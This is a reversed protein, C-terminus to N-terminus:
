KGLSNIRINQSLGRCSGADSLASRSANGGRCGVGCHAGDNWSGGALLVFCSGHFSGSGLDTTIDTWGTGGSTSTSNLFQWMFGCADEVFYQGIMRRNATDVHGGTKAWDKAGSIATKQNSGWALATFQADDPLIKDVSMLDEVHNQYYRTDTVTGDFVSATNIGTGSQLYIDVWKDIVDIYVMGDPSSKPRFGLCAISNPIIDAAAYGNALHGAITGAGACLTHFWIIKRSTTASYGQPYSSNLSCVLKCKNAASDWVVYVYYEKGAQLTTGSDLIASPIIDQTEFNHYYHTTGDAVLRISCPELVFRDRAFVNTAQMHWMDIYSLGEYTSNNYKAHAFDPKNAMFDYQTVDFFSTKDAKLQLDAAIKNIDVTVPDQQGTNSVVIYYPYHVNYPQVEANDQYTSSSRSADFTSNYASVVSGSTTGLNTTTSKGKAFVGDAIGNDYQMSNLMGEINPLSEGYAQGFDSLDLAAGIFRTIKPLRITNNINDIVFKGCQKKDALDSDFEEQTCSFWRGAAVMQKVYVAFDTYMGDQPILTGDLFHLDSDEMVGVSPFIMGIKLGSGGSGGLELIRFEGDLYILEVYGSQKIAGQGVPNGAMTKISKVGLNGVNITSEGTNSHSALFQVKMGNFYASPMASLIASPKEVVYADAVSEASEIYYSANSIYNTIATALQNTKSNEFTQNSSSLVNNIEAAMSNFDVASLTSEDDKNNSPIQRM